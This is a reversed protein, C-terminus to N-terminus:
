VRSSSPLVQLEGKELEDSGLQQLDAEAYKTDIDRIRLRENEKRLEEFKKRLEEFKSEKVVGCDRPKVNLRMMIVQGFNVRRRLSATGLKLRKM